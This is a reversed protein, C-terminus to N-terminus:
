PHAAPRNRLGRRSAAGVPVIVWARPRSAASRRDSWCCSCWRRPRSPTGRNSSSFRSEASSAIPSIIAQGFLNQPDKPLRRVRWSMTKRTLLLNRVSGCVRPECFSVVIIAMPPKRVGRGDDEHSSHGGLLGNFFVGALTVMRPSIDIKPEEQATRRKVSVM